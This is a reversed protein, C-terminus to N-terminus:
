VGHGPRAAVGVRLGVQEGGRLPAVLAVLEAAQDALRSGAGLGQGLGGVLQVGCMEGACESFTFQKPIM